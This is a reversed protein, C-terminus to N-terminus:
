IKKFNLGSEESPDMMWHAVGGSGDAGWGGRSVPWEEAQYGRTLAQIESEQATWACTLGEAGGEV